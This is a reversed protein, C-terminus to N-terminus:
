KIVLRNAHAQRVPYYQNYGQQTNHGIPEIFATCGPVKIAIKQAVPTQGPPQDQETDHTCLGTGNSKIRGRDPKYRHYATQVTNSQCVVRWPPSRWKRQVSREGAGPTYPKHIGPVVTQRSFLFVSRGAKKRCRPKDVPILTNAGEM